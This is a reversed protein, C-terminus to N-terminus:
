QLILEPPITTYYETNVATNDIFHVKYGLIYHYVNTHEFDQTESVKIMKGCTIPQFNSLSKVLLDRLAFINFNEDINTGNYFDQGIHINILLDSGQYQGGIDQLNDSIVEIFANPFPFSYVSGDSIYNFQNNWITVFKLDTILKLRDIIQQILDGM